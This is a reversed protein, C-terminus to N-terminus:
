VPKDLQDKNIYGQYLGCLFVADEIIADIDTAVSIHKGCWQRAIAV